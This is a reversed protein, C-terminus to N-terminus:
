MGWKRLLMRAAGWGMTVGFGVGWTLVLVLGAYFVVHWCGSPERKTM